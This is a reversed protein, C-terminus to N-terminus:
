GATHIIVDASKSLERLQEYNRVDVDHFEIRSDKRRLYDRNFTSSIIADHLTRSRSLNDCVVVRDERAFKEAVHSGIFGAGGTVVVKM